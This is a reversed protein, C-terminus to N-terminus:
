FRGSAVIGSGGVLVLPQVSAQGSGGGWDTWIAALGTLVAVGATAGLLVNTRKQADLGQQYEPCSEGQDLCKEEVVDRGPNSKTDLGSWVTAGALVTTIGMGVYAVIPPLGLGTTLVDADASGTASSTAKPERPLVAPAQLQLRSTAGARATLTEKRSREESWAAELAHSGPALFVRADVVPDDFIARQDVVLACAPECSITVEHLAGAAADLYEKAFAVTTPDDGYTRFALAALTAARARNGTRDHSRIALRLAEPTPVDRYANEFHAAASTFDENQFARRGADFEQAAARVRSADAEESRAPLCSLVVVLAAVSSLVHSQM